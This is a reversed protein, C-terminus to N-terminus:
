IYRAQYDQYSLNLHGQHSRQILDLFVRTHKCIFALSSMFMSQFNLLQAPQSPNLM